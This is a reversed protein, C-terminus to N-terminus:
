SFKDKNKQFNIQTYFDRAFLQNLVGIAWIYM